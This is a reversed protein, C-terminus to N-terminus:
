KAKPPPYDFFLTIFFTVFFFFDNGIKPPPPLFIVPCSLGRLEMQGVGESIVCFKLKEFLGWEKRSYWVSQYDCGWTCDSNLLKNFSINTLDFLCVLNWVPFFFDVWTNCETKLDNVLMVVSKAEIMSACVWVVVTVGLWQDTKCCLAMYASIANEM